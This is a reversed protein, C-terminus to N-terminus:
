AQYDQGAENKRVEIERIFHGCTSSFRDARAPEHMVAVRQVAMDTLLHDLGSGKVIVEHTAFFAHVEDDGGVAYVFQNWPLVYTQKLQAIELAALRDDL